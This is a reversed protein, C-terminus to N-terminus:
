KAEERIWAQILKSTAVPEATVKQLLQKKLSLSRQQDPSLDALDQGLGLDGGGLSQKKSALAPLERMTTLLQNKLPRLLLRYTLLFLLILAAYRLVSSWDALTVRVKDLTTPKAPSEAPAQDFSLNQVTLIDGRAADVGIAAKALDKIQRMEDATRKHRVEERRGNEEKVEVADDVVVAASIRRIRGAPQVMHRVVKNVAFTSSESKSLQSGDGGSDPGPKPPPNGGPVNSSTGVVGGMLM